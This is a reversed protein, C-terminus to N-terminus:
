EKKGELRKIEKDFDSLYEADQRQRYVQYETEAKLKAQLASVKGKDTLIPYNSLALFSHLFHVWDAMKMLTGRQARNDALDLYASVIRNLEKVHAENLYNKAVFVDSKLIKGDPAHKWTALGMHIKAADAASYILEAATQGTIAWHLKNQVTAFFEQTMPADAQYDISLAYIDTIKQYFRRESARIERIRELLEDFYDKGFVKMGQKLREDDLVFGKIIFERLTKTAWIRFQTAQYSNVRYGVAIITDLNYFEVERAVDRQGESRVIEMKSVTAERTLEGSEFINKLHKNIAPVKVGFLEALGKQTLWVTEENFFVDVKVAGDPATYLLFQNQKSM